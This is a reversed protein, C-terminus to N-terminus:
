QENHVSFADVTNVKIDLLDFLKNLVTEKASKVKFLTLESLQSYASTQKELHLFTLTFM